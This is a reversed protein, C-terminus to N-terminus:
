VSSPTSHPNEEDNYVLPNNQNTLPADVMKFWTDPDFSTDVGVTGRTKIQELQMNAAVVLLIALPDFVLMIVLILLRVAKDDAESSGYLLETIYQIPGTEAVVTEQTTRLEARVVVLSDLRRTLEVSASDILRREANQTRSIQTIRRGGDRSASINNVVQDLNDLWVRWRKQQEEVNQIKADILRVAETAQVVSSGNAIHARTLYGFVGISTIMSLVLVAGLFYSRIAIPATKWFRYLWSASVLKGLELVAGMVM